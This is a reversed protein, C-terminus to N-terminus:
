QKLSEVEEQTLTRWQGRLLSDELVLNGMRVRKLYFVPNNLKAFMRKVQHFKGEQLVMHVQYLGEVKDLISAEFLPLEKAEEKLKESSLFEGNWARAPLCLTGDELTLGQNIEAKDKETLLYEVYVIYEKEVHHKPSLLHHTLDGDDTLLLLGESDKDLRGVPHLKQHRESLLDMVTAQRRDETASLYGQPKNLLVYSYKEYVLLEGDLRIEDVSPCVKVDSSKVVEGNVCLRKQKVLLRAEKRTALCLHVLLKDLRMEEKPM